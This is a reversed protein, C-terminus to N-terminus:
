KKIIRKVGNVASEPLITKVTNKIKSKVMTKADRMIHYADWHSKNEDDLETFVEFVLPKDITSPNVFIGIKENFEEKNSASFYEFGLDISYDKILTKSKNGFHGGASLYSEGDKGVCYAPSFFMRMESGIANNVVLIRLNNGVHRNGISNMDYFFALDGVVCFYIKNPNTLSAGIMTSIDGDIGFGGTNSFCTVTKPLEFFNCSRLSNLIGLHLASGEPLRPALQKCIWINSFPIDPFNDIANKYERRLSILLSDDASSPHLSSYHSFFFIEPMEFVATLGKFHDRIEGDESVRWQQSSKLRSIQYDGGSVEGIHILLDVTFLTSLYDKQVAILSNSVGFNGKYNSTHSCFVVSGTARCFDDIAETLQTSMPAHSGIFIAIKGQPLQPMPGKYDVYQIVRTSPLDKVSFKNSYRTELNLHIPGGGHKYLAHFAKNVKVTVNWEDSKAEIFQIHESYVVIDKACQSRDIVQECLQGVRAPDQTSTVAIVPLKRYYAETLGPYYNRSATAGTCTIVVPEGSEAAMGCAMYAASREDVCSYMHFFPDHQLSAVFCMNTTGPSAVVNRIGYHKLMYIVMQANREDTYYKGEM